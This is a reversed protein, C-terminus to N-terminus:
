LRGKRMQALSITGKKLGDKYYRREARAEVKKEREAVKDNYCQLCSGDVTRFTEQGCSPCTVGAAKDWEQVKSKWGKKRYKRDIVNLAPDM